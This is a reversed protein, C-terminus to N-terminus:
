PTQRRPQTRRPLRTVPIRGAATGAPQGSGGSQRKSITLERKQREHYLRQRGTCTLETGPNPHDGPPPRPLGRWYEQGSSRVSLPAQRTVAWLTAFLRAHRLVRTECTGRSRRRGRCPSHRPLWARPLTGPAPSAPPSLGQKTSTHASGAMASSQAHLAVYQCSWRSPASHASEASAQTSSCEKFSKQRCFQGHNCSTSNTGPVPELTGNKLPRTIPGGRRQGASGTRGLGPLNIERGPCPHARILSRREAASGACVRGRGRPVRPAPLM